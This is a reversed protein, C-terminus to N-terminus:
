SGEGAVSRVLSLLTTYEVAGSVLAAERHRRDLVITTPPSTPPPHFALGTVGPQDFLQPYTVGHAADFALANAADDKFDVGLFHVGAGATAQAVAELFPAEERCPECWSAWYNVVVVQGRWAATSIPRGTLSRGSITIPAGRSAAPIRLVGGTGAVFNVPNAAQASVADTGACGALGAGVLLSALLTRYRRHPLTM